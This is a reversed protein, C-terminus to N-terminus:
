TRSTDWTDAHSLVLSVSKLCDAISSTFTFYDVALCGNKGASKTPIFSGRGMQILIHTYGKRSLEEKVEQTDVTVFVTKGSRVGDDDTEGM